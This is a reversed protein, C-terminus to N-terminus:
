ELGDVGRGRVKYSGNVGMWITFFLCAAGQIHHGPIHQFSELTFMALAFCTANCGLLECKNIELLNSNIPPRAMAANM